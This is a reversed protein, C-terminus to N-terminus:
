VLLPKLPQESTYDVQDYIAVYVVIQRNSRLINRIGGFQDPIENGIEGEVEPNGSHKMHDDTDQVQKTKVQRFGVMEVEQGGAEGIQPAPDINIPFIEHQLHKIIRNVKLNPVPAGGGAQNSSGENYKDQCPEEM